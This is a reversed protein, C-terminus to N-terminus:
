LIFIVNVQSKGGEAGYYIKISKIESSCCAEGSGKCCSKKTKVKAEKKLSAVDKIEVFGEGEENLLDKSDKVLVDSHSDNSVEQKRKDRNVKVTWYVFFLLLCLLPIFFNGVLPLQISSGVM